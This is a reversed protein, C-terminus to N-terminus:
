LPINYCNLSVHKAVLGDPGHQAVILKSNLTLRHGFKMASGYNGGYFPMTFSTGNAPVLAGNEFYRQANIDGSRFRDKYISRDDVIRPAQGYEDLIHVADKDLALKTPSAGKARISVTVVYPMGQKYAASVRQIQVWDGLDGDCYFEDPLKSQPERAVEPPAPRPRPQSYAVPVAPPLPSSPSRQEVVPPAKPNRPALRHQAQWSSEFRSCPWHEVNGDAPNKGLRYRVASSHPLEYQANGIALRRNPNSDVAFLDAGGEVELEFVGDPRNAEFRYCSTRPGTAQSLGSTVGEVRYKLKLRPDAYCEGQSDRVVVQVILRGDAVLECTPVDSASVPSGLLMSTLTLWRVM